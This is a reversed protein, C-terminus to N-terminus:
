HLTVFVTDDQTIPGHVYPQVM